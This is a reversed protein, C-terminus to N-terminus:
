YLFMVHEKGIGTYPLLNIYDVTCIDSLILKINAVRHVNVQICFKEQFISEKINTSQTYLAVLRASLAYNCYWFM